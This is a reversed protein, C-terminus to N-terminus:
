MVNTCISNIQKLKNESVSEMGPIGMADARCRKCLRFQFVFKGAEERVKKIEKESPVRHNRFKGLPILPIINMVKVGLESVKRAIEPIENDNIGPIFITNVKVMIGADVALRIGELQSEVLRKAAEKGTFIKDEKKVFLVIRQGVQPTLFNVTVTLFDLNLEKLFNMKEPLLLGNTALCKKLFPFKEKIIRLASFTEENALADGPGAIGVIKIEPWLNLAKEIYEKVEKVSIIREAVGPRGENVCGIKRECYACRINCSPAVPLHLRGVRFHAEENFCPHEIYESKM